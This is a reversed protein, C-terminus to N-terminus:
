IAVSALEGLDLCLIGVNHRVLEVFIPLTVPPLFKVSKFHLAALMTEKAKTRLVM